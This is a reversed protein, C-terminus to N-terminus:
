DKSAPGPKEADGRRREAEDEERRRRKLDEVMADLVVAVSQIDESSLEQMTLLSARVRELKPDGPEGEDELLASVPEGLATSLITLLEIGPSDVEGNEIQSIYVHSINKGANETKLALARLSLRKRKRLAQLRRGIEQGVSM